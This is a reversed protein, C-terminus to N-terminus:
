TGVKGLGLCAGFHAGSYTPSGLFKGLNFSGQRWSRQLRRSSGSVISQVQKEGEAIELEELM